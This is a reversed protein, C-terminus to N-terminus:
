SQDEGKERGILADLRWVTLFLAVFCATYGVKLWLSDDSLWEGVLCALAFLGSLVRVAELMAKTRPGIGTTQDKM